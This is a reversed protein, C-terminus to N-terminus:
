HRIEPAGAASYPARQTRAGKIHFLFLHAPQQFGLVFRAQEATGARSCKLLKQTSTFLLCPHRPCKIVSPGASRAYVEGSHCEHSSRKSKRRRRMWACLMFQIFCLVSSLEKLCQSHPQKGGAKNDPRASAASRLQAGQKVCCGLKSIKTTFTPAPQSCRSDDGLPLLQLEGCCPNRSDNFSHSQPPAKM